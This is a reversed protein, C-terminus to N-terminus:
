NLSAYQRGRTPWRYAYIQSKPYLGYAVKGGHNASLIKVNKGADAVVIGVHGGGGKRRMVAIAGRKAKTAKGYRAFSSAQASNTGILGVMKLFQNLGEACWLTRRKVGVKKPGAGVYHQAKDLWPAESAVCM